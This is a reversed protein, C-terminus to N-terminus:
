QKISQENKAMAARVAEVINRMDDERPFHRCDRKSFVLSGNVTVEFYGTIGRTSEYKCDLLDQDFNEMLRM